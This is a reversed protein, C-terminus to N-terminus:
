VGRDAKRVKAFVKVDEGLLGSDKSIKHKKHYYISYTVSDVLYVYFSQGKVPKRPGIVFAVAAQAGQYFCNDISGLPLISINKEECLEKDAATFAPSLEEECLYLPLGASKKLPASKGGIGTYNSSVARAAMNQLCCVLVPLLYDERGTFGDAPCIPITAVTLMSALGKRKDYSGGKVLHWYRLGDNGDGVVLFYYSDSSRLSEFEEESCLEYASITWFDKLAQRVPIDLSDNGTMVVKTSKQLFDSIKEKHTRIQLQASALVPMFLLIFLIAYRIKM